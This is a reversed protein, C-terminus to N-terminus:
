NEQGQIVMLKETLKKKPRHCIGDAPSKFEKLSTLANDFLQHGCKITNGRRVQLLCLSYTKKRCKLM